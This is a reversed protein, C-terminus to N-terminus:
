DMIKDTKLNEIKWKGLIINFLNKIKKLLIIMLCVKQKKLNKNIRCNYNHHNNNNYVQKCM